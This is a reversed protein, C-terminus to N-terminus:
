PILLSSDGYSLFRYDHSLAHDYVARWQGGILASVLVLLTSKPMHFNTILADCGKFEYGPGILLSTNGRLSHMQHGDMWQLLASVSQEWTMDSPLEYAEWQGLLAMDGLQGLSAKVGIWYLSELTRMSTTGVAIRRGQSKRTLDILVERSVNFWEGHMLHDRLLGASVPKFTGAGVHLVLKKIEVGKDALESLVEPTFHLGATPAAVSGSFKAFVTQYRDSDAIDPERHFYPPLPIRGARELVESFACSFGSWSFRIVFQGDGLDAEREASLVLEHDENVGSLVMKLYREKWKKAGGVLCTWRVSNRSEMVQQYESQYPELCFIEIRAGSERFFILRAPIVRTENLFIRDGSQLLSPLDRFVRDSIAGAQCVLLKSSAREPLPQHPIRDEPLSYDYDEIRIESPTM